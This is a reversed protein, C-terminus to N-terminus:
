HTILTNLCDGTKFSPKKGTSTLIVRKVSDTNNVCKLVNQTGRLAPEVMEKQGDKIKEAMLFPSAVHHVVSCGQMAAEFSGPMLLDAEFLELKGPYREQLQRLPQTKPGNILSRVTAHVAHGGRLLQDVLHVAIFGSGGTVLHTQPAM